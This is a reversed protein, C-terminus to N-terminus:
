SLENSQERAGQSYARTRIRPPALSHDASCKRRRASTASRAIDDDSHEDFNSTDSSLVASSSGESEENESNCRRPRQYRNPTLLDQEMTMGAGKRTRKKYTASFDTLLHLLDTAQGM